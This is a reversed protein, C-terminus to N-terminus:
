PPSPTAPRRGRRSDSRVAEPRQRATPSRHGTRPRGGAPRRSPGAGPDPPPTTRRTRRRWWWRREHGAHERPRPMPPCATARRGKRAHASPCRERRDAGPRPDPRPRRRPTRGSPRRPCGAGARGAPRGAPPAVPCPAPRPSTGGLTSTREQTGCRAIRSCASAKTVSAPIPPQPSPSRAPTGIIATDWPASCNMFVSRNTSSPTARRMSVGSAVAAARRAARSSSISSGSIARRHACNRASARLSPPGGRAASRMSSM